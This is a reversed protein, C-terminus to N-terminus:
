TAAVSWGGKTMEGAPCHFVSRSEPLPAATGVGANIEAQVYGDGPLLSM